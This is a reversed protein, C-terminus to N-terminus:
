NRWLKFADCRSLEILQGCRKAEGSKTDCGPNSYERTPAIINIVRLQRATPRPELLPVAYFFEAKKTKTKLLIINLGFM